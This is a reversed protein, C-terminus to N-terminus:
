GVQQSISPRKRASGGLAAIARLMKRRHGLLVGLKEPDQDTLDTLVSLDIV